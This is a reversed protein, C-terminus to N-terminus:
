RSSSSTSASRPRAPVRRGDGDAHLRRRTGLHRRARRRHLQSDVHRGHREAHPHGRDVSTRHRVGSAAALAITLGANLLARAISRPWNRDRLHRRRLKAVPDVAVAPAAMAAIWWRWCCWRSRARDAHVGVDSAAARDQLAGSQRDGPSSASASSPCSSRRRWSAARQLDAGLRRGAALVGRRRRGGHRQLRESRRVHARQQHLDRRGAAGDRPPAGVVRAVVGARSVRKDLLICSFAPRMCLWM